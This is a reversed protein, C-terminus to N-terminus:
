FWGSDLTRCDKKGKKKVVIFSMPSGKHYITCSNSFVVVVVVFADHSLVRLCGERVGKGM